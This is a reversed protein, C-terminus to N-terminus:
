AILLDIMARRHLHTRAVGRVADRIGPWDDVNSADVGICGNERRRFPEIGRLDLMAFVDKLM